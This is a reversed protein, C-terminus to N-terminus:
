GCIPFQDGFALYHEKEQGAQIVSLKNFSKNLLCQSTVIHLLGIQPKNTQWKM